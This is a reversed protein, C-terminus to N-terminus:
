MRLNLKVILEMHKMQNIMQKSWLKQELNPNSLLIM